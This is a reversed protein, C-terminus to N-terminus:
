DWQFQCIAPKGDHEDLGFFQGVGKNFFGQMHDVTTAGPFASYITWIRTAPDFKRMTSGSEDVNGFGNLMMRTENTFDFEKWDNSGTLRSKLARNRVDWFGILFDFDHRSSTAPPSLALSGDPRLIDM